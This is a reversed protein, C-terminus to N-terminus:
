GLSDKLKDDKKIVFSMAKTYEDLVVRVSKRKNKALALTKRIRHALASYHESSRRNESEKKGHNYYYNLSSLVSSLIFLSRIVADPLDNSGVVAMASGIVINPVGLLHKYINYTNALDEHKKSLQDAEEAMKFLYKESSEDWDEGNDDETPYQQVGEIQEWSKHREDM